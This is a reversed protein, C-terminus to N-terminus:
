SDSGARVREVIADIRARREDPTVISVDPGGISSGWPVLVDFDLERIVQLRQARAHRVDGQVHAVAIGLTRQGCRFQGRVVLWALYPGAHPETTRRSEGIGELIPQVPAAHRHALQEVLLRELHALPM